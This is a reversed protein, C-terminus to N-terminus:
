RSLNPALNTWGDAFVFTKQRTVGTILPAKHAIKYRILGLKELRQRAKAYSEETVTLGTVQQLFLSGAHDSALWLCCSIWNILIQYENTSGQPKNRRANRMESVIRRFFDADGNQAALNIVFAYRKLAAPPDSRVYAFFMEAAGRYSRDELSVARDFFHLHLWERFVRVWANKVDEFGAVKQSNQYLEWMGRCKATAEIPQTILKDLGDALSGQPPM